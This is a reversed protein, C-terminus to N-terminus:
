SGAYVEFPMPIIIIFSRIHVFSNTTLRTIIILQAALLYYSNYNYVLKAIGRIAPLYNHTLQRSCLMTM